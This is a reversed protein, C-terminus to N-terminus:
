FLRPYTILHALRQAPKLAFQHTIRHYAYSPWKPFQLLDFM